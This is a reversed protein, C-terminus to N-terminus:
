TAKAVPLMLTVCDNCRIAIAIENMMIQVLVM